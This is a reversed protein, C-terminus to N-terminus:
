QALYGITIESGTGKVVISVNAQASPKVAYLERLTPNSTMKNTIKWGNVQLYQLYENYIDAIPKTSNWQVTYLNTSSAYNISYSQSAQINPELILEKPFGSVVQGAPAYVATGPPVVKATKKHKIQAFILLGAAVVILIVILIILKKKNGM